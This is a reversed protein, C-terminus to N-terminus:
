KARYVDGNSGAGAWDWYWTQDELSKDVYVGGACMPTDFDPSNTITYIASGHFKWLKIVPYGSVVNYVFSAHNQNPYNLMDASNVNSKPTVSQADANLVQSLVGSNFWYNYTGKLSNNCTWSYCNNQNTPCGNYNCIDPSQFVADWFLDAQNGGAMGGEGYDYQHHSHNIGTNATTCVHSLNHNSTVLALKTSCQRVIGDDDVYYFSQTNTIYSWDFGSVTTDDGQQWTAMVLSNCLLILFVTVIVMKKGWNFM